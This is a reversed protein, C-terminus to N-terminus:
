TKLADCMQKFIDDGFNAATLAPNQRSRPFPRTSLDEDCIAWHDKSRLLVMRTRAGRGLMEKALQCSYRQSECVFKKPKKPLGSKKSHYPFWEIVFLGKAVKERGCEEILRRTKKLWWQACPTEEFEKKLPYFPYQQSEHRLNRLMAARFDPRAHAKADGEALGPNLSLLVLKASRHDGIFPEPILSTDIKKDSGNKEENYYEIAERDIGLVFPGEPQIETWPNEIRMCGDMAAGLDINKLDPKVRPIHM